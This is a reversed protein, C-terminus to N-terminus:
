EISEEKFRHQFTDYFGRHLMSNIALGSRMKTLLNFIPACEIDFTRRDSTTEMLQHWRNFMLLSANILIVLSVRNKLKDSLIIHRIRKCLVILLFANEPVMKTKLMVMAKHEINDFLIIRMLHGIDNCCEYVEDKIKHLRFDRFQVCQHNIYQALLIIARYQFKKDDRLHPFQKALYSYTDLILKWLPTEKIKKFYSIELEKLLAHQRFRPSSQSCKQKMQDCWLQIAAYIKGRDVDYDDLDICDLVRLNREHQADVHADKRDISSPPGISQSTAPM